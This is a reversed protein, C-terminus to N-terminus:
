NGAAILSMAAKKIEALLEPRHLVADKDELQKVLFSPFKKMELMKFAYNVVQEAGQFVDPLNSGAVGIYWARRRSALLPDAIVAQKQVYKKGWFPQLRDILIKTQANLGMAYIPAALLLYQCSLLKPYLSQMDDQQICQTTTVCANCGLCPHLQLRHLEIMEVKIGQESLIQCATNLLTWSNGHRPSGLLALAAVSTM